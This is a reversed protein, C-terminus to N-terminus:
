SRPWFFEVQMPIEIKDEYGCHSCIFQFAMDLDPINEKIHKRLAFTDKSVMETEIFKRIITKDDENDISQIVYKMRTTVETSREKNIKGMAKIESDVRNDDGQTLIKYAVLKKSYPLTFMFLNQGKPYKEFDFPKPEIISLDVNIESEESCSQCKIKIPGYNDGYALRRVAVFIGNMDCLLIDDQKIKKDVILSELLKQLVTGRKILNISSLIDEDRATMMKIEIKGSSLPHGQPYFWGKSNLDITETLYKIKEVFQQPIDAYSEHPAEQSTFSGKPIKGEKELVQKVVDPVLGHQSQPRTIPIVDNQNEM